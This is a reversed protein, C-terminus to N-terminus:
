RVTTPRLRGALLRLLTSKGSGNAGVLGVRDPGCTLDLGDLVATGDPWRFCLDSCTVGIASPAPRSM